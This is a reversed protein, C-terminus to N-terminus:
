ALEQRSRDTVEPSKYVPVLMFHKSLMSLMTSVLMISVLELVADLMQFAVPNMESCKAPVHHHATYVAHLSIKLNVRFRM